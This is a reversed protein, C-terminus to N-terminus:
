HPETLGLEVAMADVLDSIAELGAVPGGAIMRNTGLLVAGPARAGVAERFVGGPDRLHHHGPAGAEGETVVHTVVAPEVRRAWATCQEVVESDRAPDCFVLLRAAADSLRWVGVPGSGDHLLGEPIPRQEYAWPDRRVAFRVALSAAVAVGAAVLLTATVGWARGDLRSLREAVGDGRWSDAWTLIALALLVVNRVLTRRTVEGLGLRGFCPCTVPYPLRLADRIVVVYLSFLVLAAFAAVVYSAGRTVVLAAAVVLEGYPLLRPAQLRILVRPVGLQRFVSATDRPDRLKAVASVLLVVVLLLPPVVFVASSVPEPYAPDSHL